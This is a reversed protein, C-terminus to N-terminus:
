ILTKVVKTHQIFIYRPLLSINVFYYKLLAEDILKAQPGWKMKTAESQLWSSSQGLLPSMIAWIFCLSIWLSHILTFSINHLAKVNHKSKYHLNANRERHTHTLTYGHRHATKLTHRQRHTLDPSRAETSTLKRKQRNRNPHNNRRLIFKLM